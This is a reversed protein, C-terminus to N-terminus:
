CVAYHDEDTTTYMNGDDSLGKVINKLQDMTINIGSKQLQALAETYSAGQQDDAVSRYAELVQDKLSTGDQKMATNLSQVNGGMNPLMSMGAAMGFSAKAQGMASGPIPGKTNQLHVLIANLYHHTMENWDQVLKIDYANITRKQGFIRAAGHVKILSGVEIGELTVDTFKTVEIRGTGDSVTIKTNTTSNELSEVTGLIKVQQPSVGDITIEDGESHLIQKITIPLIMQRDRNSKKEETKTENDAGMFGGGMADIGGFGGGGFGEDMGGYELGGFSM